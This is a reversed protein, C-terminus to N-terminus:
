EKVPTGKCNKKPFSDAMAEWFREIDSSCLSFYTAILVRLSQSPVLCFRMFVQVCNMIFPLQFVSLFIGMPSGTLSKILSLPFLKIGPDKWKRKFMDPLLSNRKLDFKSIYIKIIKLDGSDLFWMKLPEDTHINDIYSWFWYFIYSFPM